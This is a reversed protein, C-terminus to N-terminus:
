CRGGRDGVIEHDNNANNYLGVSLVIQMSAEGLSIGAALYTDDVGTGVGYFDLTGDWILPM